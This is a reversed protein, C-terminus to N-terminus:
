QKLLFISPTIKELYGMEIAKFILETKSFCCFKNKLNAIHFEVTKQSIDLARAVAKSTKGRLTYFLCEKERTTLNFESDKQYYEFCLNHNGNPPTAFELLELIAQYCSQNFIKVIYYFNGVVNNYRDLVTKKVIEVIIPKGNLYGPEIGYWTSEKYALENHRHYLEILKWHSKDYIDFDNKGIIQNKNSFNKKTFLGASISTLEQHYGDNSKYGAFVKPNKLFVEVDYENITKSFDNYAFINSM